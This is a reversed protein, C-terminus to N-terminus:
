APVATTEPIERGNVRLYLDIAERILQSRSSRRETAFEDVAAVQEPAISIAVVRVMGTATTNSRPKPEM